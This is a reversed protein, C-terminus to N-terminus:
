ETRAVVFKLLNKSIKFFNWSSKHPNQQKKKKCYESRNVYKKEFTFVTVHFNRGNKVLALKMKGWRHHSWWVWLVDMVVIYNKSVLKWCSRQFDQNGQMFTVVLSDMNHLYTIGCRKFSTLPTLSSITHIAVIFPRLFYISIM